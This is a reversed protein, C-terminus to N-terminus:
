LSNKKKLLLDRLIQFCIVGIIIILYSAISCYLTKYVDHIRNNAAVLIQDENM